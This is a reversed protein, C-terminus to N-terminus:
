KTNGKLKKAINEEVKALFSTDIKNTIVSMLDLFMLLASIPWLVISLARSGIFDYGRENDRYRVLVGYAVSTILGVVLYLGLILTVDSGECNITKFLYEINYM